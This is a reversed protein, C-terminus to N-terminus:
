GCIHKWYRCAYLQIGYESFHYVENVKTKLTRLAFIPPLGLTECFSSVTIYSLLPISLLMWAALIATVTAMLLVLCTLFVIHEFFSLRTNYFETVPSFLSSSRSGTYVTPMNSITPSPPLFNETSTGCDSSHLGPSTPLPPMLVKMVPSTLSSAQSCFFLTGTITLDPLLKDEDSSTWLHNNQFSCTSCLCLVVLFLRIIFEPHAM